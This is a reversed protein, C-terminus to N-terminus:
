VSKRSSTCSKRVWWEIDSLDYDSNSKPFFQKLIDQLIATQTYALREEIEGIKRTLNVSKRTKRLVTTAAHLTEHVLVPLNIGAHLTMEAVLTGKRWQGNKRIYHTIPIVISEIKKADYGISQLHRRMSQKSAYIRVEVNNTIITKL